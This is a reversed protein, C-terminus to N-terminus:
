REVEVNEMLYNEFTDSRFQPGNKSTVTLPFGNGSFVGELADIIKESTFINTIEIEYYPSFYEVVFFM